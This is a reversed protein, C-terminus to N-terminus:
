ALAKQMKREQDPQSQQESEELDVPSDAVAATIQQDTPEKSDKIKKVEVSDVEHDDHGLNVVPKMETSKQGKTNQNNFTGTGKIDVSFFSMMDYQSFPKCTRRHMRPDRVIIRLSAKDGHM